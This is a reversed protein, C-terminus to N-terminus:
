FRTCHLQDSTHSLCSATPEAVCRTKSTWKERRVLEMEVHGGHADLEGCHTSREAASINVVDDADSTPLQYRFRLVVFVTVAVLLFLLCAILGTIINSRYRHWPDDFYPGAANLGLRLVFWSNTIDDRLLCYYLGLDNKSVSNIQLSWADDLVQFRHGRRHRRDLVALDPLMWSVPEASDPLSHYQAPYSCDLVVSVGATSVRKNYLESLVADCLSPSRSLCIIQSVIILVNQRSTLSM